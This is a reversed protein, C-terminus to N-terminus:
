GDRCLAELRQMGERFLSDIHRRGARLLLHVPTKSDVALTWTVITATDASPALTWQEVLASVGPANAEYACYAFREGPDWAIIRERARIARYLRFYRTSGDGYPPSGEFYVDNAPAFWRPWNEPQEALQEFIADAPARLKRTCTQRFPARALFGLDEPRLQYSM